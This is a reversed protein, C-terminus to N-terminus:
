ARPASWCPLRSPVTGGPFPSPPSHPPKGIQTFLLAPCHGSHPGQKEPLYYHHTTHQGRTLTHHETLLSPLLARPRGGKRKASCRATPQHLAWSSRQSHLVWRKMTSRGRRWAISFWISAVVALVTLVTLLLCYTTLRPCFTTLLLCCCCCEFALHTTTTTAAAAAAVDITTTVVVPPDAVLDAVVRTCEM